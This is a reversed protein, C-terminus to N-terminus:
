ITSWIVLQLLHEIHIETNPV